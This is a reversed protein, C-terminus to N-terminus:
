VFKKSHARTCCYYLKCIELFSVSYKYVCGKHTETETERERERNEKREKWAM